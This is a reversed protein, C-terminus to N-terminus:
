SIPLSAHLRSNSVAPCCGCRFGGWWSQFVAQLCTLCVLFVAACIQFCREAAGPRVPPGLASFCAPVWIKRGSDGVVNVVGEAHLLSGMAVWVLRAFAASLSVFHFAQMELGGVCVGVSAVCSAPLCFSPSLWCWCGLGGLHQFFLSRPQLFCTRKCLTLFGCNCLGPPLFFAHLSLNVFQTQGTQRKALHKRLSSTGNAASPAILAGSQALSASSTFVFFLKGAHKSIHTKSFQKFPFDQNSVSPTFNAQWIFKKQEKM